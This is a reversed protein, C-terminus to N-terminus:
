CEEKRKLKLGSRPRECLGPFENTGNMYVKARPWIKEIQAPSRLNRPEYIGDGFVNLLVKEAQNVDRYARNGEGDRLEYGPVDTKLLILQKAWNAAAAFWIKMAEQRNLIDAIEQPTKSTLIDDFAGPNGSMAPENGELAFRELTECLGPVAARPCYKCHDGAVAANGKTAKKLARMKAKIDARTYIKLKVPEYQDLPQVIFCTITDIEYGMDELETAKGDGYMWLQEGVQVDEFGFKADGVMLHKQAESFISVDNTGYCDPHVSPIHVRDEVWIQNFSPDSRQFRQVVEVYVDAAEAIDTTVTLGHFVKESLLADTTDGNGNLCWAALAHKASGDSSYVTDREIYQKLHDPIPKLSEQCVAWRHASSPAFNSHDSM